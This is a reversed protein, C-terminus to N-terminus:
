SRLEYGLHADGREIDSVARARSPQESTIATVAENM